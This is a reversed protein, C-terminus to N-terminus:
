QIAAPGTSEREILQVELPPVQDITEATGGSILHLLLEVGHRGMEFKAQRITTLAPCTFSAETIDDFGVVSFDLPVQLGHEHLARLAGIAMIDNYAFVATPPTDLGLLYNIANKGNEMRHGGPAIWRRDHFLGAQQMAELYGRVREQSHTLEVERAICGIRTHGLAILHQTALFGGEFNKAVVSPVQIGEAYRDLIITPINYDLLRNVPELSSTAPILIVGMARETYLHKVYHLERELDYNSHCFILTFDKEYAVSEIGQAVEAFYTNSTDPIILGLTNTKRRRLNRAVANPQYGLEKIAQMVKQRTEPSVPRPGNNMVYSVTASSVGALRAVDNRTVANTIHFNVELNQNTM